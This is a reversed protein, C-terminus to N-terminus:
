GQRIFWDPFLPSCSVADNVKDMIDEGVLYKYHRINRSACIELERHRCEEIIEKINDIVKDFENIYVEIENSNILNHESDTEKFNFEWTDWFGLYNRILNIEITM